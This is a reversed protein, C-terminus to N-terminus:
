FIFFLRKLKLYGDQKIDVIKLYTLGTAWFGKVTHKQYIGNALWPSSALQCGDKLLAFRIAVAPLRMKSFSKWWKARARPQSRWCSAPVAAPQRPARTGSDLPKRCSMPCTGQDWFRKGTKPANNTFLKTRRTRFINTVHTNNQWIASENQNPVCCRMWSLLYNHTEVASGNEVWRHNEKKFVSSRDTVTLIM